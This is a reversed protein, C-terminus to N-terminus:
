STSLSPFLLKLLYLLLQLSLGARAYTVEVNLGYLTLLQVCFTQKFKKTCFMCIVKLLQLRQIFKNLAKVCM